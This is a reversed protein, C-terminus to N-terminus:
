FFMQKVYGLGQSSFYAVHLKAPIKEQLISRKIDYLVSRVLFVGVFLLFSIIINAPCTHNGSIFINKFIAMYM